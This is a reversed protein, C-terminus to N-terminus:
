PDFLERYDQFFKESRAVVVPWQSPDARAAEFFRAAALRVSAALEDIHIVVLNAIGVRDIVSQLPHTQRNGWAYIVERAKGKRSLASESSYTHVVACRAAYLDIPSCQNFGTPILYMQCWHVFDDRTVDASAIPRALAALIDIGSYILVLAPMRLHNALCLDIAALHNLVNSQLNPADSTM